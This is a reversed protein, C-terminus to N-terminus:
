REIWDILPDKRFSKLEHYVRNIPLGMVNFFDGEIKSVGIYGIWEQIGYGGAKDMPKFREVYHDIEKSTLDKFYVNTKDTFSLISEENRICVGTYVAHMRGSLLSLMRKAEDENAPKNIIQEDIVVVTDATILIQNILKKKFAKSKKLALYEAVENAPLTMPFRENTNIDVLTYKLGVADLLEKRRPSKSGLLLEMKKLFVDYLTHRHYCYLMDSQAFVRLRIERHCNTAKIIFSFPPFRRM